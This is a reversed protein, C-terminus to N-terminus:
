FLKDEDFDDETIDDDASANEEVKFEKALNRELEDFHMDDALISAEFNKAEIEDLLFDTEIMGLEDVSNSYEESEIVDWVVKYILKFPDIQNTVQLDHIHIIYRTLLDIPIEKPGISSQNFLPQLRVRTIQSEFRQAKEGKYFVDAIAYNNNGHREINVNLVQYFGIRM